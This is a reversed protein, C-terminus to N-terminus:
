RLGVAPSSQPPNEIIIEVRRNQQRGAASNNNAVPRDQGMGAASLRSSAIGQRTLYARVSEARRQSLGHNYTASGVNDTHGEIQVRRDPYQNLFDVLQNLNHNAGSQLQASATAFLVDGLTLVLGRDTVQAQMADIRRRLEDAERTRADLRADSREESFRSRQDEAYRTTAKARAIELTRDAMYVRHEGLSADAVSVPQEAIRVAEEAERIEVRAHAALNPDRQLTRLKSRVEASGEPSSPVSACGALMLSSLVLAAFASRRQRPEALLLNM